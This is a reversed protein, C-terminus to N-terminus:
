ESSGGTLINIVEEAQEVLLTGSTEELTAEQEMGLLEGGPLKFVIDEATKVTNGDEDTHEYPLKVCVGGAEAPDCPVYSGNGAFTHSKPLIKVRDYTFVYIERALDLYDAPSEGRRSKPVSM